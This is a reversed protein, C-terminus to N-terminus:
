ENLRRQSIIFRFYVGHKPEWRDDIPKRKLLKKRIIEFSANHAKLMLGVYAGGLGTGNSSIGKVGFELFDEKLIDPPFPEGNNAYDIIIQNELADIWFFIENGTKEGKFGHDVANNIINDFAEIFSSEHLRAKVSDPYHFNFKFNDGRYKALIHKDFLERLDVVKYDENKLETIRKTVLERTGKILKHMQKLDNIAESIKDKVIIEKQGEYFIEQLPESDMGKRNIFDSLNDLISEVNGIRRNLSHGLHKVIQFEAEKKEDKAELTKQREKELDLIYQKLVPLFARQMKLSKHVPLLISELSTITRSALLQEYVCPVFLSYYLYECIIKNEKPIFAVLEKQYFFKHQEDSSFSKDDFIKDPDFMTPLKAPLNSSLRAIEDLSVLISKQSLFNNRNVFKKFKSKDSLKIVYPKELNHTLDKKDIVFEEPVFEQNQLLNSSGEAINDDYQKKNDFEDEKIDEILKPLKIFEIDRGYLNFIDTLNAIYYFQPLLDYLRIDEITAIIDANDETKFSKYIQCIRNIEKTSVGMELPNDYSEPTNNAKILAVKGKKSLHKNNNIILLFIPDGINGLSVVAEIYDYEFLFEKISTAIESSLAKESIFIGMRGTDDLIKLSNLLFALEQNEHNEYYDSQSHADLLIISPKQRDSFSNAFSDSKDIIKTKVNTLALRLAASAYFYDGEEEGHLRISSLVQNKETLNLNESEKYPLYKFLSRFKILNLNVSEALNLIVPKAKDQLFNIAAVLGEGTFCFPVYIYDGEKPDLLHVALKNYSYAYCTYPYSWYDISINFFLTVVDTIEKTSVKDESLDLNAFIDIIKKQTDAPIMDNYRAIDFIDAIGNLCPNLSSIERLNSDILKFYDSSHEVVHKWQCKEPIKIFADKDCCLVDDFRKYSFIVLPITIQFFGDVLSKGDDSRLEALIQIADYCESFLMDVKKSYEM